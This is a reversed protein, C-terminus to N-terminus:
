YSCTSCPYVAKRSLKQERRERWHPSNYVELMTQTNVDGIPFKGHGDMCCLSVVGTSCISLEFWRVCPTNPVEIQPANIDGLWADRKILVAKFLPWRQTVYSIFNWEITSDGAVVRSVVVPHQFTGDQVLDHLIDLRETTMNFKIQMIREYEEPDISNLSVWVHEINKVETLEMIKFRTLPAGNTFLRIRALPQRKNIDILLPVLRKDLLPENVKFPSFFFPETFTCLEDVLKNLLEDSM